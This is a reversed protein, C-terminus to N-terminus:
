DVYLLISKLYNIESHFINIPHDMGLRHKQIIRVNRKADLASDMIIKQFLDEPVHYSCSCTLLFSKSPMKRLTTRNIDKYGRKAKMVDEKKKAFAPPDLIILDYNLDDDHLFEFADQTIFENDDSTFGNIEFNKKSLEIADESIDVSTIKRAGEKAAYLSFGGTYSFTNLVKKDKALSGILNRMERQDLFLGTKQSNSVDVIFKINNEKVILTHPLKGYLAGEFSELGDKKRAHITSKEYVCGIDENLIEKCGEIINKVIIEKLKDIGTSVIQLVIVNNYKDAVLGSIGDGEGNILRYCNTDEKFINKRLTIARFINRKLSVLPDTDDFNIMRGAIVTDNNFYAHGLMEGEFTYVPMIEGNNYHPTSKIAGSFIWQHNNRIPMERGPNLVVKKDNM